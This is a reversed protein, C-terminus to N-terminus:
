FRFTGLSGLGKLTFTVMFGYEDPFESVYTNFFVGWCQRHYDIGIDMYRM